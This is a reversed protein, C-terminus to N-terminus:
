RDTWTVPAQAGLAVGVAIVVGAVLALATGGVIWPIPDSSGGDSLLASVLAEAARDATETAAVRASSRRPDAAELVLSSGEARLDVLLLTGGAMRAAADLEPDIPDGPAGPDALRSGPDLALEISVAAGE